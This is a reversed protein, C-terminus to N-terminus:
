EYYPSDGFCRLNLKHLEKKFDQISSYESTYPIVSDIDCKPCLATEGNDTWCEIESTKYIEECYVCGCLTSSALKKRNIM